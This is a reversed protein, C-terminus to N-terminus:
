ATGNSPRGSPPDVADTITEAIEVVADVAADVLEENRVLWVNTTRLAELVTLTVAGFGAVHTPAYELLAATAALVSIVGGITSVVAKANRAVFAGPNM